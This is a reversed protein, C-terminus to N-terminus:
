GRLHRPRMGKAWDPCPMSCGEHWQGTGSAGTTLYLVVGDLSMGCDRCVNPARLDWEIDRVMDNVEAWTQLASSARRARRRRHPLRDLLSM